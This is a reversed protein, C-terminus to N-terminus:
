IFKKSVENKFTEIYQIRTIQDPNKCKYLQYLQKLQDLFEWTTINMLGLSFNSIRRKFETFGEIENLLQPPCLLYQRGGANCFGEEDEVKDVEEIITKSWLFYKKNENKKFRIGVILFITDGYSDFLISKKRSSISHSSESLKEEEKTGYGPFGGQNLDFNHYQVLYKM